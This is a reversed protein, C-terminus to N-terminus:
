DILFNDGLALSLRQAASAGNVAIEALRQSNFYWFADGPAVASFTPAYRLRRDGLAITNNQKICDASVGTMANGFGDIYVVAGLTAPWDAGTLSGPDLPATDVTEGRAIRAAVPAFLDRGHFSASLTAPRWDIRGARRIGPLRALLGNDPGVFTARETEVVIPLRAGGVGPDVVAVVVARDALDRCVAPLLYAALDPRFRPADHMLHIVPVGPDIGFLAAELQGVYPGTCGFDTFLYVPRPTQM